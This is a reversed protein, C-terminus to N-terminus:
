GWGYKQSLFEGKPLKIWGKKGKPTEIYICKIKNKLVYIKKLYITTGKKLTYKTKSSKISKRVKISKTLQYSLENGIWDGHVTYTNGTVKKLRGGSVKYTVRVFYCGLNSATFPTDSLFVIKGNGPQEDALSYRSLIKSNKIRFYKKLGDKKYRFFTTSEYGQEIIGESVGIEKYKDKTNFDAIYIDAWTYVNDKYGEMVGNIYIRYTAYGNNSTVSCYIIDKKGDGDLDYYYTEQNHLQVVSSGKAEAVIGSLMFAITMICFICVLKKILKKM